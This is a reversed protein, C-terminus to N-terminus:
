PRVEVHWPVRPTGQDDKVQRLVPEAPEKERVTLLEAFNMALSSISGIDYRRVTVTLEAGEGAEASEEGFIEVWTAVLEPDPTRHASVSLDADLAGELASMMSRFDQEIEELQRQTALVRFVIRPM